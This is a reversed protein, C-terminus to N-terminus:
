GSYKWKNGCNVCQSITSSSEDCSRTQIQYSFTKKSKCKGCEIVGEEVEIPNIIYHDIEEFKNKIPSYINNDFGLKNNKITFLVDKIHVKNELLQTVELIINKYENEDKSIKYINNELVNVNKELKLLLSLCEKGKTRINMM